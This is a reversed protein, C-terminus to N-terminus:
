QGDPNVDTRGVDLHHDGRRVSRQQGVPLSGQRGVPPWRDALLVGLLDPFRDEVADCRADGLDSPRRRARRRRHRDPHGALVRRRHRHAGIPARGARHQHPPIAPAGIGAVPQEAGGAHELQPHLAVADRRDTAPQAQAVHQVEDGLIGVAVGTENLHHVVNGRAQGAPHGGGAVGHEGGLQAVVAADGGPRGAVGRLGISRRQAVVGVQETCGTDIRCPQGLQDCGVPRHALHGRLNGGPQTHGGARGHGGPDVVGCGCRERGSGGGLTIATMKVDIVAIGGAKANVAIVSDVEIIAFRLGAHDGPQGDAGGCHQDGGCRALGLVEIVLDEGHGRGVTAVQQHGLVPQTATHGLREQGHEIPGTGTRRALKCLGLNRQGRGLGAGPPTSHRGHNAPEIAGALLSV